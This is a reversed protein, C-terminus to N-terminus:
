NKLLSEKLKKVASNLYSDKLNWVQLFHNDCKLYVVNTGMCGFDNKTIEKERLGIITIEFETLADILKASDVVSSISRGKSDALNYKLLYKNDTKEVKFADVKNTDFNNMTEILLDIKKSLRLTDLEIVDRVDYCHDYFDIYFSSDIKLPKRIEEDFITKIYYSYIGNPLDKYVITGGGKTITDLEAVCKKGTSDYLIFNIANEYNSSAFPLNITVTNKDLDTSTKDKTDTCSLAFLFAFFFLYKKLKSTTTKNCAICLNSNNCGTGFFDDNIKM